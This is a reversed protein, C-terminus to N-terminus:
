DASMDELCDCEGDVWTKMIINADDMDVVGDCNVDGTITAEGKEESKIKYAALLVTAALSCAIIFLLCIAIIDRAVDRKEKM